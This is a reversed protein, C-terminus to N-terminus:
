LPRYVVYCIIITLIKQPSFKWLEIPFLFKASFVKKNACCWRNVAPWGCRICMHAHIARAICMRGCGSWFPTTSYPLVLQCSSEFHDTSAVVNVLFYPISGNSLCIPVRYHCNDSYYPSFLRWSMFHGVLLAWKHGALKTNKALRESQHLAKLRRLLHRWHQTHFNVSVGYGAGLSQLQWAMRGHFSKSIAELGRFEHLKRGQFKEAICYIFELASHPRPCFGWYFGQDSIM